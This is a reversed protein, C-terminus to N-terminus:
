FHVFVVTSLEKFTKTDTRDRWRKWRRELTGNSPWLIGTSFVSCKWSFESLFACNLFHLRICAFRFFTPPFNLGQLFLIIFIGACYHFMKEVYKLLLCRYHHIFNWSLDSSVLRYCPEGIILLGHIFLPSVCVAPLIKKKKGPFRFWHQTFFATRRWRQYFHTFGPSFLCVCPIQVYDRAGPFTPPPRRM